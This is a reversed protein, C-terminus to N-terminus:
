FRFNYSETLQGVYLSWGLQQLDSMKWEAASTTQLDFAHGALHCHLEYYFSTHGSYKKNNIPFNAKIGAAHQTLKPDFVM